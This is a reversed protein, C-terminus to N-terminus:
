GSGGSGFVRRIISEISDAQREIEAVLAFQIRAKRLNEGRATVRFYRDGRLHDTLFRLGLEFPILRIAPYILAVEAPSLLHRIQEAYAGLIDGCVTTDFQVTAASEGSRNCCSRLCDGIDYHILGPQVTDLDILCLAQDTHQHFLLNDLKPDGHIVRIRTLGHRLADELRHVLPRRTAIFALAQGIQDDKPANRRGTSRADELAADLAALCTPTHHFGPLTTAFADPNLEAGLRHFRGLTRGIETAQACNKVSSL